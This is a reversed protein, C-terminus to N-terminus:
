KKGYSEARGSIAFQDGAIPSSSARRLSLESFRGSTQLSQLVAIADAGEAELDFNEGQIVLSKIWGGSLSRQLGAIVGYPNARRDQNAGAGDALLEAIEAELAEARELTQRQEREQKEM